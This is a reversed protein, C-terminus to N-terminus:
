RPIPYAHYNGDEYEDDNFGSSGSSYAGTPSLPNPTRPVSSGYVPQAAPLKQPPSRTNTYSRSNPNASSSRGSSSYGQSVSGRRATPPRREEFRKSLRKKEAMQEEQERKERDKDRGRPRERERDRDERHERHERPERHEKKSVPRVEKTRDPIPSSLPSSSSSTGKATNFRSLLSDHDTQLETYKKLWTKHLAEYDAKSQDLDDNAQDREKKVATLQVKLDKIDAANNASDTITKKLSTALRDRESQVKNLETNARNLQERLSEEIDRVVYPRDTNHAHSYSSRIFFAGSQKPSEHTEARLEGSPRHRLPM